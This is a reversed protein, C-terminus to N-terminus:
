SSSSRSRLNMGHYVKVLEMHLRVKRGEHMIFLRKNRIEPDHITYGVMTYEVGLNEGMGLYFNGIERIVSPLSEVM